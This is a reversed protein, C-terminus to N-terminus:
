RCLRSRLLTPHTTVGVGLSGLWCCRGCFECCMEWSRVRTGLRGVGAGVFGPAVLLLAMGLLGVGHVRVRATM